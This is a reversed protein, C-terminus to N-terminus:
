ASASSPSTWDLYPWLTPMVSGLLVLLIATIAHEISNAFAHLQQHFRHRAESGGACWARSSPRLSATAKPLSSSGTPSSCAPLHSCARRRPPSRSELRSGRRSHPRAALRHRHRARHRCRHPLRRGMGAVRCALARPERGRSAVHLALYVFPFALGDNLGAETTLAFRVPHEKGELPPGIQLDGALVPDTPALVAGLLIAGGVTM